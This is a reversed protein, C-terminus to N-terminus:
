RKGDIIRIAERTLEYMRGIEAYFNVKGEARYQDCLQRIEEDRQRRGESEDSKKWTPKNIKKMILM